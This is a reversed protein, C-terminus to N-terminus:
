FFFFIFSIDKPMSSNEYSYAQFLLFYLQENRFNQDLWKRLNWRMQQLNELERQLNIQPWQMKMWFGVSNRKMLPSKTLIKNRPQLIFKYLFLYHWSPWDPWWDMTLCDDFGIHNAILPLLYYNTEEQETQAM